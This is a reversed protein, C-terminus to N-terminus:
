AVLEFYRRQITAGEHSPTPSVSAIASLLDGRPWGPFEQGLTELAKEHRIEEATPALLDELTRRVTTM